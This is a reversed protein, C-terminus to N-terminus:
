LRGRPVRVQAPAARRAADARELLERGQKEYLSAQAHLAEEGQLVLLGEPHLVVDWLWTCGTVRVFAVWRVLSITHTERAASTYANLQALTVSSDEYGLIETMEAAIAERTKGSERIAESMAICIQRNFDLARPLTKPALVPAMEAVAFLDGQHQDRKAKSM